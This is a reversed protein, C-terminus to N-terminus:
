LEETWCPQRKCWRLAQKAYDPNSPSLHLMKSHEGCPCRCRYYTSPRDVRWDHAELERIVAELEPKPHRPRGGAGPM